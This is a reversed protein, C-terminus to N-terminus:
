VVASDTVGFVLIREFRKRWNCSMTAYIKRGKVVVVFFSCTVTQVPIQIMKPVNEYRDLTSLAVCELGSSSKAYM